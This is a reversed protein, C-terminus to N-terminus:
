DEGEIMAIQAPCEDKFGKAPKERKKSLSVLIKDRVNHSLKQFIIELNNWIVNRRIKTDNLKDYLRSKLSM